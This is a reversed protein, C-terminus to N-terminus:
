AAEQHAGPADDPAAHRGLDITLTATPLAAATAREAGLRDVRHWWARATTADWTEREPVALLREALDRASAPRHAPAKALCALVLAELEAPVPETTRQSPPVPHARVHQM